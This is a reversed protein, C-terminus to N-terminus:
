GEFRELDRDVEARLRAATEPDLDATDAVVEREALPATAVTRTWRLIVAGVGVAGVTLLLIPAAWATFGLGSSAPKIRVIEGYRAAFASVIETDTQDAAIAVQLEDLMGAAFNCGCTGIPRNPCTGCVCGIEAGLREYQTLSHDPQAVLWAAGLGLVGAALLAVTLIAAEAGGRQDNSSRSM